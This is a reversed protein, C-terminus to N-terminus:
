HMCAFGAGANKCTTGSFATCVTANWSCDIACYTGMCVLDHDPNGGYDADCKPDTTRCAGGPATGAPKPLCANETTLCAYRADACASSVCPQVCVHAVDYCTLGLPTCTAEATCPIVCSGGGCTM